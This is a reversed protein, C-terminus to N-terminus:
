CSTIGDFTYPHFSSAGGLSLGTTSDIVLAGHVTPNTMLTDLFTIIASPDM